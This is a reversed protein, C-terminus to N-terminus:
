GVNQQLPAQATGAILTVLRLALASILAPKTMYDDAGANLAEIRDAWSSHPLLILVPLVMGNARWSRLLDLQTSKRQGVDLVLAEYAADLPVQYGDAGTAREVDFGAQALGKALREAFGPDDEVLLINM